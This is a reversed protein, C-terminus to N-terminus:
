MAPKKEVQQPSELPLYIEECIEYLIQDYITFILYSIELSLAYLEDQPEEIDTGNEWRKLHQLIGYQDNDAITLPCILSLQNVKRSLMIAYHRFRQKGQPTVTEPISIRFRTLVELTDLVKQWHHHYDSAIADHRSDVLWKIMIDDILFMAQRILKGHEIQNKAVTFESWNAMIRYTKDQLVRVEPGTLTGSQERLKILCQEIDVHLQKIDNNNGDQISLQSHTLARHQRILILLQRCQNVRQFSWQNSKERAFNLYFLSAIVGTVILFSFTIFM